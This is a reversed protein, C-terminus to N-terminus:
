ATQDLGPSPTAPYRRVLEIETRLDSEFDQQSAPLNDEHSAIQLLSLNSRRFKSQMMFQIPIQIHQQACPQM